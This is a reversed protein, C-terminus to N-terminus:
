EDAGARLGANERELRAIAARAVALDIAQQAIQQGLSSVVAQVEEETM